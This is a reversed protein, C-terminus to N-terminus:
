LYFDEYKDDTKSKSPNSDRPNVGNSNLYNEFHSPRFLTVPNLHVNMTPNDIWVAVMNDIIRKFDDVSRGERLMKNLSVISEKTNYEFSKNTKLNLYDIIIRRDKSHVDDEDNTKSKKGGRKPKTLPHETTEQLESFPNGNEQVQERSNPKENYQGLWKAKIAIADILTSDGSLLNRLLQVRNVGLSKSLEDLRQVFQSDLRITILEPQSGLNKNSQAIAEDLTIQNLTKAKIALMDILISDGSLLNRILQARNVGLRLVLADLRELYKDGLRFPIMGAM